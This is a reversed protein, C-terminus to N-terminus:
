KLYTNKLEYILNKCIMRIKKSICKKEEYLNLQTELFTDLENFIKNADSSNSAMVLSNLLHITNEVNNYYEQTENEKYEVIKKLDDIIAMMIVDEIVKGNYLTSILIMIKEAKDKTWEESNYALSKKYEEKVTSLLLKRFYIKENDSTAFHLSLFEYCLAAVLPRTVENEKKIKLICQFVLENLEEYSQFTIERILGVIKTLNQQSLKNLYEIIKAKTPDEKTANKFVTSSSTRANNINKVNNFSFNKFFNVVNENEDTIENLKNYLEDYNYASYEQTM